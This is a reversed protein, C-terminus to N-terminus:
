PARGRFVADRIHRTELSVHGYDALGYCPTTGDVTLTQQEGGILTVVAVVDIGRGDKTEFWVKDIKEFPISVKAQGVKGTLYVHGNFSVKTVEFTNLDLDWVVARFSVAPEPIKSDPADEAWPGMGLSLLAVIVLLLRM